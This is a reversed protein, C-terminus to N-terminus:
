LNFDVIQQSYYSKAAGLFAMVQYEEKFFVRTDDKSEFHYQAASYRRKCNISAIKEAIKGLASSAPFTNKNFFKWDDQGLEVQKFQTLYVIGTKIFRFEM